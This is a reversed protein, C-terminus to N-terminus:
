LEHRSSATMLINIQDLDDGNFTVLEDFTMGDGLAIPDLTQIEGDALDDMDVPPDPLVFEITAANALYIEWKGLDSLITSRFMTSGTIGSAIMTRNLVSYSADTPFSLFNSEFVLDNPLSDATYILMGVDTPLNTESGSPYALIVMAYKGVQLGGYAPALRMTMPAIEGGGGAEASTLGLPTLG